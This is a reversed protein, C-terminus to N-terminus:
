RRNIILYYIAWKITDFLALLTNRKSFLPVAPADAADIEIGAKKFLRDTDSGRAVTKELMKIGFRSSRVPSGIIQMSGNGPFRHTVMLPPSSKASANLITEPNRCVSIDVPNSQASTERAKNKWFAIDKKKFIARMDQQRESDSSGSERDFGLGVLKMVTSVNESSVAIWGDRAKFLGRFTGAGGFRTKGTCFNILTGATSLSTALTSGTGTNLKRYYGALAGFSGLLGTIFDNAPYPFLEPSGPESYKNQIGCVAQITQEFGPFREWPGAHGFANLHVYVLGPFAMAMERHGITLREAVGERFNQVVIDPHYYETIKKLAEKGRASQLEISVSEKGCNFLLHFPEAFYQHSGPNEIRIVRAGFEALIRGALPGAIINTFDAVTVGELPFRATADSKVVSSRPKVEGRSEALVSVSNGPEVTGAHVSVMSNKMAADSYLWEEMSGVRMCCLGADSLLSQWEMASKQRFLTRLAANLRYTRVVGNAAVPDKLTDSDLLKKLAASYKECGYQEIITLFHSLHRSMGIHLYVAGNDATKRIGTFPSTVWQLPSWGAETGSTVIMKLGLLTVAAELIGIEISDGGGYRIGGILAATIANAGNLAAIISALPFSFLRPKGFGALPAFLSAEAAAHFDIHEPHMGSISPPLTYRCMVQQPGPHWDSGCVGFKDIIVVDANQFLTDSGSGKMEQAPVIEKGRNLFSGTDDSTVLAVEAGLDSLLMGTLRSALTSGSEVVRVGSLLKIEERVSEM